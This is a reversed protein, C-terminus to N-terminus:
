KGLQQALLRVKQALGALEGHTPDPPAAEVAPAPEADFERKADGLAAAFVEKAPADSGNLQGVLSAVEDPDSIESLANMQTGNDCAVIIRRGVQVLLVQQKPTVSSKALVRVVGAARAGTVNPFWRRALWRLLIVLGIVVALALAV